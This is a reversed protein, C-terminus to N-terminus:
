SVKLVNVVLSTITTGVGTNQLTISKSQTSMNGLLCASDVLVYYDFSISRIETGATTITESALAGPVVIDNELLQITATGAATGTFTASVTIKYMGQQQLYISNSNFDFTKVGCNNKKCYKRYISGLNILGGTLVTQSTTNKTGLLLM